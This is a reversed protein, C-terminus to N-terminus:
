NNMRIGYHALTNRACRIENEKEKEKKEKFYRIERGKKLLAKVREFEYILSDFYEEIYEQKEFNTNMFKNNYNINLINNVQSVKTNLVFYEQAIENSIYEMKENLEELKTEQNIFLNVPETEPISCLTNHKSLM